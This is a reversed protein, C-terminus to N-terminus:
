FGIEQGIRLQSRLPADLRLTVEPTNRDAIGVVIERSRVSPKLAIVTGRLAPVAAGKMNAEFYQAETIAQVKYGQRELEDALERADGAAYPLQNLGSLRSCSSVGVLVAM